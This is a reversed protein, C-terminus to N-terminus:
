HSRFVPHASRKSLSEALKVASDARLQFALWGIRRSRIVLMPGEARALWLVATVPALEFEHRRPPEEPVEPLMQERLRGLEVILTELEAASFTSDESWRLEARRRGEAVQAKFVERKM